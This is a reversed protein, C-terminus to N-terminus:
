EGLKIYVYPTLPVVFQPVYYHDYPYISPYYQWHSIPVPRRPKKYYNYAHSSSSSSSSSDYYKFKKGGSLSNTESIFSRLKDENVPKSIERLTFKIKNDSIKERATFHVFKDGNRLTFNFEPINSSFHESIARYAELGAERNNKATFENEFSGKICPNVIYYQKM